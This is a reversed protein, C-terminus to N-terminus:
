NRMAQKLRFRAKNTESGPASLLNILKEGSIIDIHEHQQALSWSKKGTRGTHVFLGNLNRRACLRAFDGVHGANIHNSYRKAQILYWNGDIKVRGDIGGDGTYRKNRQIKFNTQSYATLILEEFVFPNLKRLYAMRSAPEPITQLTQWAKKSSKIYFHHHSKIKFLFGILVASLLVLGLSIYPSSNVVALLAVSDLRDWSVM